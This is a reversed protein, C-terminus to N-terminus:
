HRPARETVDTRGGTAETRRTRDDRATGTPAPVYGWEALQQLIRDAAAEPDLVLTQPPTREALAGTLREIRTRSPLAPDPGDLLRARPRFTGRRIPVPAAELAAIPPVVEITATRSALVRALTARRLTAAAGEMSLVTPGDIAFQERRGGDLRRDGTFGAADGTFGAPEGTSRGPAGGVGRDGGRPGLDLGVLGCVQGLGLEAALFPPVSASGRDLSWDGCVVMAPEYPRLADALARAVALSSPQEHEGQPVRLAHAAGAALAERLMEDAAGVGVTAVVVRGRCREALRLGWELAAQDAPSAGSWREDSSVLGSLPDVEPRTAVWKQCVAIWAPSGTVESRTRPPEAM